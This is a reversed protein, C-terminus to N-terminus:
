DTSIIDNYDGMSLWHGKIKLRTSCLEKWLKDHLMRNSSAVMFLLSCGLCIVGMSLMLFFLNLIRLVLILM